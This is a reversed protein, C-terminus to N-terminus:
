RRMPKRYLTKSHQCKGKKTVAEVTADVDELITSNRDYAKSEDSKADVVVVEDSNGKANDNLTSM